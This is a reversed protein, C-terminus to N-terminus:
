LEARVPRRRIISIVLIVPGALIVVLLVLWPLFEQYIRAITLDKFTESRWGTELRDLKTGLAQEIGGECSMGSAYAAMLRNFGPEGFQDYLYRTFSASQAYALLGRQADNPFSHCLSDFPLLLDSEFANDILTQYEPNPYLEVLSALGENFWAPLNIYAHSDTYNLGVHMLEHPIQREMELRQDPGTPLSVLMIGEFPDAHGALWNQGGNPLAAQLAQVSDYVYIDLNQPFFVTLLDQTSTLSELAVNLVEEGFALDGQYWHITFPEGTLSRLQYRNDAYNFAYQPSSWNDGDITNVQYWYEINTFGALPYQELDVQASLNGFEDFSVPHVQLDSEASARIFLLVEDIQEEFILSAKFSILEAFKYEPEGPNIEFDVQASGARPPFVLLGLIFAILIRTNIRRSM